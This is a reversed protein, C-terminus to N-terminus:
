FVARKVSAENIYSSYQEAIAKAIGPYTRSRNIKRMPGPPERFVKEWKKREEKDKPPPGVIDTPKLEPLGKLWLCTAKMEKHGFQWPQIIQKQKPLLAHKHPIPNEVVVYKCPHNLFMYFFDRARKMDIWRQTVTQKDGNHLWQVGSNALYDCPPHAVILDWDKYLVELIDCQYHQGPIETAMLDCSWADHGLKSFEERVIGSMECAILVKM